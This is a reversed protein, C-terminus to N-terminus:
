YRERKRLAELMAQYHAYREEAIKGTELQRRVMCDPEAGHFCDKFRCLGRAFEPFSDRLEEPTLADELKLSSFGPTDLLVGGGPLDMLEVHRTTHKGRGLKESLAGTDMAQRGCLANTLTSKGVGSPGALFATKGKLCDQLEQLTEQDGATMMIVSYPTRQYIKLIDLDKEQALDRKTLCILPKVGRAECAVLMKDLLLLNPRPNRFAFVIVALDVNAVPPRIFLNKRPHIATLSYQEGEPELDVLDGVTPVIHQHRFIGVPKAEYLCSSGASKIYYFGGIGKIIRGTIMQNSM